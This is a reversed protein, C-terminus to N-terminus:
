NRRAFARGAKRRLLVTRAELVLVLVLPLGFGAAVVLATARAESHATGRHVHAEPWDRRSESASAAAEAGTRAVQHGYAALGWGAFWLVAIALILLRSPRPTRAM